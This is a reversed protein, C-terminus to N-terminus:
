ITADVDAQLEVARRLLGATTLVGVSLFAMGLHGPPELLIDAWTSEAGIPGLAVQRAIAALVPWGVTMVVLFWGTVRVASALKLTFFGHRRGIKVVRRGLFLGGVGLVLSGVPAVAAAVEQTVTPERLCVSLDSAGVQAVTGLRPREQVGIPPVFTGNNPVEVCTEGDGLSGITVGSGGPTMAGVLGIAAFTLLGGLVVFFSISVIADLVAFPDRQRAQRM